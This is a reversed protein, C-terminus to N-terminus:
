QLYVLTSVYKAYDEDGPPKVQDPHEKQFRFSSHSYLFFRSLLVLFAWKEREQEFQQRQREFEEEYKKQEDKPLM